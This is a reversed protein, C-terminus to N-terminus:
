LQSMKIDQFSLDIPYFRGQLFNFRRFVLVYEDFVVDSWEGQRIVPDELRTRCEIVCYTMRM